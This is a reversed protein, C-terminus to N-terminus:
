RIFYGSERLAPKLLDQVFPVFDVKSGSELRVDGSSINRIQISRKLASRKEKKDKKVLNLVSVKAGPKVAHIDGSLKLFAYSENLDVVKGFAIAQEPSNYEGILDSDCPRGRWISVTNHISFDDGLKLGSLSGAPVVVVDDHVSQVRTFWPTNLQDVQLKAQAISNILVKTTLLHLPTQYLYGINGNAKGLDLAVGLETKNLTAKGKSNAIASKPRLPNYWDMVMTMQASKAKFSVGFARLWGSLLDFGFSIDTKDTLELSVVKADLLYEAPNQECTLALPEEDPVELKVERSFDTAAQMKNCAVTLLSLSLLLILSKM